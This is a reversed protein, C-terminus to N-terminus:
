HSYSDADAFRCRQSLRRQGRWERRWQRVHRTRRTSGVIALGVAGAMITLGKKRRTEPPTTPTTTRYGGKPRSPRPRESHTDRSGTETRQGRQAGRTQDYAARRDPHSLTEFALNLRKMMEAAEQSPNRDPHYLLALRRYAAQIVDPHATPHVQLIEYLDETEPM